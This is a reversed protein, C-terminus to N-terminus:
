HSNIISKGENKNDIAKHPKKLNLLFNMKKCKIFNAFLEGTTTYFNTFVKM